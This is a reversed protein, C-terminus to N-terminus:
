VLATLTGTLPEFFNYGTPNLSDAPLVPGGLAHGLVRNVQELKTSDGAIAGQLRRETSQLDVLLQQLYEDARQKEQRRAWWANVALAILVGAVIVGLEGFLRKWPLSVVLTRVRQTSTM